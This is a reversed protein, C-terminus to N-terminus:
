RRHAQAWRRRRVNQDLNNLKIWVADVQRQLSQRLNAVTGDTDMAGLVDQMERLTALLRMWTKEREQETASAVLRAATATLIGGQEALRVATTMAPINEGVIRKLGGSLGDYSLWTVVSAIVSVTVIVGFAVFLRGRIGTLAGKFM